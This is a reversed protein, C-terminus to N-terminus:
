KQCQFHLDKKDNGHAICIRKTKKCHCHSEKQKKGSPICTKEIIQVPLAFQKESKCLTVKFLNGWKSGGVIVGINSGLLITLKQDM